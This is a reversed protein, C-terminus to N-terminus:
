AECSRWLFQKTVLMAYSTTHKKHNAAKCSKQLTAYCIDCSFAQSKAKITDKWKKHPHFKLPSDHKNSSKIATTMYCTQVYM